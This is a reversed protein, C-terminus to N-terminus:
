VFDDKLEQTNQYYYWIAAIATTTIYLLSTKLTHTGGFDL